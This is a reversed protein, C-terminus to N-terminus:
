QPMWPVPGFSFTELCTDGQILTIREVPTSVPLWSSKGAAWSYLLIVQPSAACEATFLRLKNVSQLKTLQGDRIADRDGAASGGTIRRDRLEAAM